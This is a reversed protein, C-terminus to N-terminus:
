WKKGENKVKTWQPVKDKQQSVKEKQQKNAAGNAGNKKVPKAAAGPAEPPSPKAHIVREEGISREAERVAELADKEWPVWEFNKLFQGLTARNAAKGGM